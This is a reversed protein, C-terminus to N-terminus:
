AEGTKVQRSITRRYVLYARLDYTMIKFLNKSIYIYPFLDTRHISFSTDNPILQTGKMNTNELRTGLKVTIGYINKSAQVYAANINESYKYSSTRGADKVRDGNKGRFYDTTNNFGVNSSKLGTEVTLKKPLKFLLNTQASFFNLQTKIKGDGGFVGIAPEYFTTAFNQENNNPSYNYSIDTTWESGASDIKYKASVGQSFYFTNGNNAVDTTNDTILNNSSIKKIQSLNLTTNTFDSYNIRTDYSLEWNKNVTHSMGFGLYYNNTPYLSFADQSLLSDTAFLRDTKVQESNNRRGYQMNLYTTTNGNNNNLNVGIFQTGYNGQNGGVTVSGTLGIKVGKKLVINVIGGSGSADYKASPTRMIEISAISNPPLNKLMTAIDAASMKQERGNIYISAPTTSSLYVNGDQDVFLGPTKEIIEYANTSSTALNEPDVITKDDEQRIVPRISTVTVNKLSASVNEAIFTFIPNANKITIGKKLAAYNVSSVSVIYQEERNLDFKAIGSSDSVKSLNQMSDKVGTVTVSAFPVPQNKTNIIKVTVNTQQAHIRSSQLIFFFVTSIFVTIHRPRPLLYIKKM